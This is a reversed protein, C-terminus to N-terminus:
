AITTNTSVNAVVSIHRCCVSKVECGWVGFGPEPPRALERTDATYKTQFARTQYRSVLGVNNTHGVDSGLGPNTSEFDWECMGIWSQMKRYSDYIRQVDCRKVYSVSMM